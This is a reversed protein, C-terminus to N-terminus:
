PRTFAGRLSDILAQLAAEGQHTFHIFSGDAQVLGRGQLEAVAADDAKHGAGDNQVVSSVAQGSNLQHYAAFAFVALAKDSLGQVAASM